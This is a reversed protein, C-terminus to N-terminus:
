CSNCKQKKKEGLYLNNNKIYKRFSCVRYSTDNPKYEYYEMVNQVWEIVSKGDM